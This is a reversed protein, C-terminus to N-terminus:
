GVIEMPSSFQILGGANLVSLIANGFDNPCGVIGKYIRRLKLLYTSGDFSGEAIKEMFDDIKAQAVGESLLHKKMADQVLCVIDLWCLKEPLKRELWEELGEKSFNLERAFNSTNYGRITGLVELAASDRVRGEYVWRAFKSRDMKDIDLIVKKSGILELTDRIVGADGRSPHVTMAIWRAMFEIMKDKDRSCLVDGNEPTILTSWGISGEEEGRFFAIAMFTMMRGPLGMDCAVYSAALAHLGEHVLRSWRPRVKTTEWEVYEEWTLRKLFPGLKDWWVYYEALYDEVSMDTGMFKTRVDFMGQLCGGVFEWDKLPTGEKPYAPHDKPHQYKEM